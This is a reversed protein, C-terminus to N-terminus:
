RRLRTTRTPALAALASSITCGKWGGHNAIGIHDHASKGCDQLCLACFNARCLPNSCAVADCGSKVDWARRCRPCRLVLVREALANRLRNV